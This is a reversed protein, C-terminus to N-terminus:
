IGKEMARDLGSMLVFSDALEPKPLGIRVM